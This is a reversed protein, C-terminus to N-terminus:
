KYKRYLNDMERLNIVMYNNMNNKQNEMEEKTM